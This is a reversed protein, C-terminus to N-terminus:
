FIYFYYNLFDTIPITLNSISIGNLLSIFVVFFVTVNKELYFKQVNKNTVHNNIYM